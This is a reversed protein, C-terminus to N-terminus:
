ARPPGPPTAPTATASCASAGMAGRRNPLGTSSPPPMKATASSRGCPVRATPRADACTRRSASTAKSPAASPTTRPLISRSACCHRCPTLRAAPGFIVGGRVPIRVDAEAVYRARNEAAFLEPLLAGFSRRSQYSHWTRVLALADAEPLSGKARWLDFAQRLPERYVAAPIELRAMIAQAQANDLPSVLEQFARAYAEAFGLRADAELARARAYIGDLIARQVLGDFPKGKRRSRLSASSDSAARYAGSVIQLATLNALFVDTDAEQYVPLIRQALDRMLEAATADDPDRPPRFGFDAGWAWAPLALIV